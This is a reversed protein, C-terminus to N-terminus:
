FTDLHSPGGAMYLFIVAKAKPDPRHPRRPALPNARAIDDHLLSALALGGMGCCATRLFDRRNQPVCLMTSTYDVLFHLAVQKQRKRSPTRLVDRSRWAALPRSRFRRM